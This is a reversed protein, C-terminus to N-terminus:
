RGPTLTVRGASVEVAVVHSSSSSTDLLNDLTGASVDSTVRYEEDPLTIDFSGASVDIVVNEPADGRLDANIAGASLGFDATRVDSLNADFRGASMDVNVSKAGGTATVSGASLDFVLDGFEGETRLAGSALHMAADFDGGRELEDPLTLTVVEDDIDCWGLCWSNWSWWASRPGTVVLEDGNRRDMSWDGRSGAVELKAEDVDGFQLTVDAAAVHLEVSTLGSADLTETRNETPHQSSLVQSAASFGAGLLVIGGVIAITIGIARRAGSNVTGNTHRNM